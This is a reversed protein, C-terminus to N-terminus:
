CSKMNLMKNNLFLLLNFVCLSIKVIEYLYMTNSFVKDRKTYWLKKRRPLRICSLWSTILCFYQDEL